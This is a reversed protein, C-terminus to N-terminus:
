AAGNVVYGGDRLAAIAADLVDDKVLLYDTDFTSVVFCSIGRTSLATTFSAAVGTTTFPIPGGLALCRWGRESRVDHPVRLEDCVISLEDDTRTISVFGAGDAWPPLPHNADLRAVAYLRPLLAFALPMAM